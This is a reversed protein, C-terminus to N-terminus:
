AKKLHVMISAADSHDRFHAPLGIRRLASGHFRRGEDDVYWASEDVDM